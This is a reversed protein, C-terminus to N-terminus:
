FINKMGKPNKTNKNFVSEETMYYMGVVTEDGVVGLGVGGGREGLNVGRQKRELFSCAELLHCGPLVFHSM